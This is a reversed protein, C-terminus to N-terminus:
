RVIAALVVPKTGASNMVLRTNSLRSVAALPIEPTPQSLLITDGDLFELEEEPPLDRRAAGMKVAMDVIQCIEPPVEQRFRVLLEPKKRGAVLDRVARMFSDVEQPTEMWHRFFAERRAPGRLIDPDEDHLVIIRGPPLLEEPHEGGPRWRMIQRAQAMANRMGGWTSLIRVFRMQEMLARQLREEITYHAVMRIDHADRFGSEPPAERKPNSYFSIRTAEDPEAHLVRPDVGAAALEAILVSFPAEGAVVWATVDDMQDGQRLFLDDYSGEAVPDGVVYCHGTQLGSMKLTRNYYYFVEM